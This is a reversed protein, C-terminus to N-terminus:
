RGISPLLLRQAGTQDGPELDTPDVTALWVFETLHAVTYTVTRAAPDRGILTIGHDSWQGATVDWYRLELTAPDLGGLLAPDYTLIITV